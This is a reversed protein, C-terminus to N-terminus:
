RGLVEITERDPKINRSHSIELFIRVMGNSDTYWLSNTKLDTTFQTILEKGLSDNIPLPNITTELQIVNTDNYLRIVHSLYPSFVQRVESVIDSSYLVYSPSSNVQYKETSNPSEFQSFSNNLNFIGFYTLELPKLQTKM